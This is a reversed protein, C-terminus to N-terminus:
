LNDINILMKSISRRQRLLLKISCRDVSSWQRNELEPNKM